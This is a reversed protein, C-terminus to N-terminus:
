VNEKWRLLKEWTAYNKNFRYFVTICIASVLALWHNINFIFYLLTIIVVIGFAFLSVWERRYRQLRTGTKDRFEKEWYECVKLYDWVVFILYIMLLSSIVVNFNKYKILMIGYMIILLIDLIFRVMAYGSFYNLTRTKISAHYGFWSLTLNFFGLLFVGISFSEDISPLRGLKHWEESLLGSVGSIQLVEPTLGVSIAVTFLFDLFDLGAPEDASSTM